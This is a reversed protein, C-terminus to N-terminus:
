VGRTYPSWSYKSVFFTKCCYYNETLYM